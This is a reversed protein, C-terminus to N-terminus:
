CPNLPKWVTKGLATVTNIKLAEILDAQGSIVTQVKFM